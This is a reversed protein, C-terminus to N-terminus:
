SNNNSDLIRAPFFKLQREAKLNGQLPQFEDSVAQKPTIPLKDTMKKDKEVTSFLRFKSKM